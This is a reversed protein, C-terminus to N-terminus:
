HQLGNSTFGATKKKGTPYRITYNLVNEACPAGRNLFVDGQKGFFM